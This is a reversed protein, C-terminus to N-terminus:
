FWKENHDSCSLCLVLYSETCISLIESNESCLHHKQRQLILASLLSCTCSVILGNNWLGEKFLTIEWIYQSFDCRDKTWTWGLVNVPVKCGYRWCIMEVTEEEAVVDWKTHTQLPNKPQSPFKLFSFNPEDITVVFPIKFYFFVTQKFWPKAQVLSFGTVSCIKHHLYRIIQRAHCSYVEM